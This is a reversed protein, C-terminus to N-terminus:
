LSKSSFYQQGKARGWSCTGKNFCSKMFKNQFLIEKKRQKVGELQLSRDQKTWYNICINFILVWRGGSGKWSSIELGKMTKKGAKQKYYYKIFVSCTWIRQNRKGFGCQQRSEWHNRNNGTSILRPGEEAAVNSKFEM